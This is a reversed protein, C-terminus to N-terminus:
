NSVLILINTIFHHLLIVSHKSFITGIRRLLIHNWPMWVYAMLQQQLFQTWIKWEPFMSNIAMYSEWTAFGENPWLHSWWEM